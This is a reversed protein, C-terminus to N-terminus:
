ALEQKEATGLTEDADMVVAVSVFTDEVSVADACVANGTVVSAADVVASTASATHVGAVDVAVAVLGTTTLLHLYLINNTNLYM